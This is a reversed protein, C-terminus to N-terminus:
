IMIILRPGRLDCRSAQLRSKRVPGHRVSRVRVHGQREKFVAQGDHGLPGRLVPFLTKDISVNVPKRLASEKRLEQVTHDLMKRRLAETVGRTVARLKSLCWQPTASKVRSPMSAVATNDYQGGDCMAVLM